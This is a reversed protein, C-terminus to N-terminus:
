RSTSSRRAQRRGERRDRTVGPRDDVLALRRGVLRNFLTSKGVNPRGVIAVTFTMFLQKRGCLAARTKLRSCTDARFPAPHPSSPWPATTTQGQAPWPSQPKAARAASDQQPWPALQQQQQGAAQAPQAVGHAAKRRAEAQNRSPSWRPPKKEPEGGGRGQEARRPVQLSSRDGAAASQGQRIGASNGPYRGARRGPFVEKRDGPLKKKENLGFMDLKDLDFDACGSLAPM